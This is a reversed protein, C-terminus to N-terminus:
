ASALQQLEEVVVIRIADSLPYSLNQAVLASHVGESPVAIIIGFLDFDMLFKFVPVRTLQTLVTEARLRLRDPPRIEALLYNLRFEDDKEETGVFRSAAVRAPIAISEERAIVRLLTAVEAPTTVYFGNIDLLAATALSEAIIGPAPSEAWSAPSGTHKCGLKSQRFWQRGSPLLSTEALGKKVLHEARKRLANLSDEKLGDFKQMTEPLACRCRRLGDLMAKDKTQLKV